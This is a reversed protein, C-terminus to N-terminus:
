PQMITGTGAVVIQKTKGFGNITITGPANVTANPVAFLVSAPSTPAFSVQPPLNKTSVLVVMAGCLAEVRYVGTSIVFVVRYGILVRTTTCSSPKIQSLARERAITLANTVGSAAGDVAQANNFSIFSAMGIMSVIGMISFVVLLEIFTYGRSISFKRKQEKM